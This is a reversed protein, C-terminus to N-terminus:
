DRLMGDLRHSACSPRSRYVKGSGCAVAVTSPLTAEASPNRQLVDSPPRYRERVAASMRVTRSLEGPGDRADNPRSSLSAHCRLLRGLFTCGARVASGCLRHKIRGVARVGGITFATWATGAAGTVRQAM